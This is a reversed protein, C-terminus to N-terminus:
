TQHVPASAPGASLQLTRSPATPSPPASRRSGRPLGRAGLSAKGRGHQVGLPPMKGLGLESLILKAGVTYWAWEYSDYNADPLAPYQELPESM